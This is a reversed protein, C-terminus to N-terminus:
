PAPGPPAGATRGSLAAILLGLAAAATLLSLAMGMTLFDGFIFGLQRRARAGDGSPHPRRRLGPRLRRGDPRPPAAVPRALGAADARGADAAGRPRSRLAPEPPAASRRLQPLRLGLARRHRPRLARWQRLQRPPWPVSRGARRGGDPRVADARPLRPPPRVPIPRHGHRHLWRACEHRRALDRLNGASPAHIRSFQLVPHLRHPRRARRRLDDVGASRRRRPRRPPQSRGVSTRHAGHPPHVVLRVGSRHRLGSRVLPHRATRVRRDDPQHAPLSPRFHADGDKPFRPSTQLNGDLSSVPVGSRGSGVPM